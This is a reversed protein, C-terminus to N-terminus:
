EAGPRDRAHHRGPRRDPRARRVRPSDGQCGRQLAAREAHLLFSSYVGAYGLMLSAGDLMTPRAMVPRVANEVADVLKFLDLAGIDIGARLFAAALAELPANGAGAGLGACCGDIYTAGAQVGALSNAVAMGLNNHAHVGVPVNLAEVLAAVKARYDDPLMAGASDTVYVCDAGYGEMLKAQFALEQPSIMHSMMLFGITELGLSKAYGIHQLAIDAETCHTAIRAMSAGCDAAIKLDERTGIGPLLLVAIKTTTVTEAAVKLLEIEQERSFGYNFSSGGLGDGHSLEITDVGAADLAGAISRVMESTFQHRM